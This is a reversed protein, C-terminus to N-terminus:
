GLQVSELNLPFGQGPLPQWEVVRDTTAFVTNVLWGPIVREREKNLLLVDRILEQRTEPDSETAQAALLDLIEQDETYQSYTSGPTLHTALVSSVDIRSGHGNPGFVLVIRTNQKSKDNQFETLLAATDVAELSVNVGIQSWNQVLADAFDTGQTAAWLTVDFGDAYGAEALLEAALDPNYDFEEGSGEGPWGLGRSFSFWPAPAGEGALLTDVIAQRDIAISLARRVREDSLPSDPNGQGGIQLTVVSSEEASFTNLNADGQVEVIAPGSLGSVIDVEGSRLLNMRANLDPVLHLELTSAEPATGHFNDNREFELMRGPTTDTLVFPGSGIPTKNFEEDGVEEVYDKPVVFGSGTGEGFAIDYPVSLAPQKTRITLELGDAVVEDIYEAMRSAGVGDGAIYREITFAVDEADLVEGNSFVRDPAIELKWETADENPEWSTAVGPALSGDQGVSIVTEYIIPLYTLQQTAAYLAPDFDESAITDVAVRLEKDASSGDDGNGGNDPSTPGASCASLTLALAAGAGLIPILKKKIMM